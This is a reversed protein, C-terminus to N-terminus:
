WPQLDDANYADVLEPWNSIQSESWKILVRVEEREGEANATIAGAGMGLVMAATLLVALSRKKM